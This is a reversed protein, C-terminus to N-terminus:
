TITLLSNGKCRPSSSFLSFSRYTNEPIRQLIEDSRILRWSIVILFLRRHSSPSSCPLISTMSVWLGTMYSTRTPFSAYINLPRTLWSRHNWQRFTLKSSNPKSLPQLGKLKAIAQLASEQDPPSKSVYATVMNQLHKPMRDIFLALFADCIRNIKSAERHVAAHGNSLGNSLHSPGEQTRGVATEKYM